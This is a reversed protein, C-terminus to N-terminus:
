KQEPTWVQENAAMIGEFFPKGAARQPFQLYCEATDLVWVSSPNYAHDVAKQCHKGYRQCRLLGSLLARGGRGAKREAGSNMMYANATIMSQNREYEEWSLYSPHHDKILVKWGSKRSAIARAKTPVVTSSRRGQKGGVTSRRVPMSRIPSCRTFLHTDPCNGFWRASSLTM